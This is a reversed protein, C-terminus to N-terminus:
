MMQEVWKVSDQGELFYFFYSVDAVNAVSGSAPCCLSHCRANKEDELFVLSNYEKYTAVHFDLSHCRHADSSKNILYLWMIRVFFSDSGYAASFAFIQKKKHTHTHQKPLYTLKPYLASFDRTFDELQPSSLKSDIKICQYLPNQSFTSIGKLISQRLLKLLSVHSKWM